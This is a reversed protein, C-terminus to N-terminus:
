QSKERLLFHGNVRFQLQHLSSHIPGLNLITSGFQIGL